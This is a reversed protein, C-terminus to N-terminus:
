RSEARSVVVNNTRPDTNTITYGFESFIDNYRKINDLRETSEDWSLIYSINLGSKMKSIYLKLHKIAHARFNEESFFRVKVYYVNGFCTCSLLYSEETKQMKLLM